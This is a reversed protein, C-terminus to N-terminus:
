FKLLASIVGTLQNHYRAEGDGGYAPDGAFDGRIEPRFEIYKAPHWNVGLTLAGYQTDIGTRTGKIDAFWDARAQADFTQTIHLIGITYLGYWSGTGVPTNADWGMNSQVVQTFM